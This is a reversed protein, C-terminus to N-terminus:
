RIKRRAWCPRRRGLESAVIAVFVVGAALMALEDMRIRLETTPSQYLAVHEEFTYTRQGRRLNVSNHIDNLARVLQEKSQVGDRFHEQLAAKFHSGCRKCPILSSMARLMHLWQSREEPSLESPAAHAFSHLMSWTDPGWVSLDTSHTHRIRM